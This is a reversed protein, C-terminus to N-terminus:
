KGMSDNFRAQAAAEYFARREPETMESYPKDTQPVGVQGPVAKMTESPKNTAFEEAIAQLADFKLNMKEFKERKDEPISNLIKARQNKKFDRAWSADTKDKEWLEKYKNQEILSDEEMKKNRAKLKELESEAAQARYRMKQSYAKEQNFSDKFDQTDASTEPQAEQGTNEQPNSGSQEELM